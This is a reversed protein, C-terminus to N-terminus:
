TYRAPDSASNRIVLKKTLEQHKGGWVRGRRQPIRGGTKKVYSPM